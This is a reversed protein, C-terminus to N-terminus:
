PAGGIAALLSNAQWALDPRRLDVAAVLARQACEIALRPRCLSYTLALDVNCVFELSAIM